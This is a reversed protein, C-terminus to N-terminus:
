RRRNIHLKRKGYAFPQEGYMRVYVYIFRCLLPFFAYMFRIYCSGYYCSYWGNFWKIKMRRIKKRRSEGCEKEVAKEEESKRSAILSSSKM